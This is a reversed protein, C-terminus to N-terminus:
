FTGRLGFLYTQGKIYYSHIADPFQFYTIQKASFVNQVDFTVEPDSPLEGFLTSLKVSSSLDAQGYAQGFIFAGGPCGSANTGVPFCVSQQNGLTGYVKDNWNYSMRFMVGNNEYYGTLNYQLPAVGLAISPVVGTAKQDLVTVNANIGFGKLGYQELLFDLPQVYDFEMGNIIKLGPFNAQGTVTITTNAVTSQSATALTCGPTRNCLAVQQTLNLGDYTIGFQALYSFPQTVNANNTFGSLSKRFLAVGFYGEQGTYYEFGIDINNSFFPKLAPNGISAQQATLDSFNVVSIMQSPDPRTMTRSISGRVQFDDAVEYVLNISPLFAQYTHKAGSFTYITPYQGGALLDDAAGTGGCIGDPGCNRPDTHNVPSIITQHTEIWRLGIDYKLNREGLKLVGDLQGYFAYTKEDFSGSTGGTNSATAFSGGVGGTVATCNTSHCTHTLAYNDIAYYNSAKFISNYDVTIFGTPGPRLFSALGAQPVLSGGYAIAPFGASYGTGYGPLQAATPAGVPTPTNQGNCGVYLSSALGPLFVNPNDGCIANQWQQSADIATINRYLDDYAAGLKLSVEDGGYKVDLHAGDTYTYRKEDQLNVRGNNWQFNAPNNLDLSSAITPFAGANSFTVVNGGVPPTCGPLTASPTNLCTSVFVTPSDRLFHSRTANVQVDVELLDTVLWSMGPNISFFDGKEKFPRAELAFGADYFTGSTVAGGAGGTFSNWTPSITLGAPILAQSGAGSRVGFNIDSRNLNNFQRGFIFDVYFHLADTPRFEGSIVANFRDRSGEDFMSRGLRPLLANSLQLNTATNYITTGTLNRCFPPTTSTCTAPNAPDPINNSFTATGNVVALAPNLAALMAAGIPYNAPFFNGAAPTWGPALAFGSPIPINVNGPVTGPLGWSKSGFTACGNASPSFTAGAGSPNPSTATGAPIGTQQQCQAASMSPGVWGANGDEWGKVFVNNQVGAIGILLGFPGETDSSRFLTTYPFLTV